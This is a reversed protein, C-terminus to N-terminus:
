FWSPKDQKTKIEKMKCGSPIPKSSLILMTFFLRPLYKEDIQAKAYVFGGGEYLQNIKRDRIYVIAEVNDSWYNGFYSMNDPYPLKKGNFLIPKHSLTRAALLVEHQPFKPFSLSVLYEKRPQKEKIEETLVDRIKDLTVQVENDGVRIKEARREKVKDYIWNAAVNLAIPLAVHTAIILTLQLIDPVGITERGILGEFRLFTGKAIEIESGTRLKEERFFDKTIELTDFTEIEISAEMM